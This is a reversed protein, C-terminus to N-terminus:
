GPIGHMHHLFTKIPSLSVLLHPAVVFLRTLSPTSIELVHPLINFLLLPTLLIGRGISCCFKKEKLVLSGLMFSLAVSTPRLLSMCASASSSRSSEVKEGRSGNKIVVEVSYLIKVLLFSFLICYKFNLLWVLSTSWLCSLFYILWVFLIYCAVINEM